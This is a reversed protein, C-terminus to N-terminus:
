DEERVRLLLLNAAGVLAAPVGGILLSLLEVASTLGVVGAAGRGLALAQIGVLIELMGIPVLLLSLAGACGCASAASGMGLWTGLTASASGLALCGGIWMVTVNLLGSGIQLVGALRVVGHPVVQRSLAGSPRPVLATPEGPPDPIPVLAVSTAQATPEAAEEELTDLDLTTNGRRLPPPPVQAGAAGEELLPRLAQVFADADQFRERPERQLARNVVEDLLTPLGPRLHLLPKYDCAVVRQMTDFDTQGEFPIAGSCLQYLVVGMAFLDTRHDVQTPAEIQEPSMYAWTGISARTQTKLQGLVKAVGFDLVKLLEHGDEDRAIYLNAPKLDRHVVGQAHAYAMAQLAETVWRAAEAPPLPGERELRQSLDEGELYDMILGAVGPESVVETVRVLGRHRFRAQLRGEELFRDRVERVAVLDPRLVKLAHASHLIAHRVRYVSAMGGSGLASEVIYPGVRANPELPNM